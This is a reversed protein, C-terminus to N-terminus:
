TYIHPVVARVGDKFHEWKLSPSSIYNILLYTGILLVFLTLAVSGVIFKNRHKSPEKGSYSTKM